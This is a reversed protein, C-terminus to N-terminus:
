VLYWGAKCCGQSKHHNTGVLCPRFTAKYAEQSSVLRDSSNVSWRYAGSRESILFLLPVADGHRHINLLVAVNEGIDKCLIGAVYVRTKQIASPTVQHSLRTDVHPRVYHFCRVTDILHTELNLQLAPIPMDKPQLPKPSRALALVFFVLALAAPVFNCIEK